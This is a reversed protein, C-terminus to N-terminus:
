RRPGSARPPATRPATRLRQGVRRPATAAPEVFSGTHPKRRTAHDRPASKTSTWGLLIEMRFTRSAPSTRAAALAWAAPKVKYLGVTVGPEIPDIAFPAPPLRLRSVLERAWRGSRADLLGTTSAATAENVLEGTLWFSIVDPILAIREASALASGSEEALLQFVTNIPMTQIGTVSYLDTRSVRAHARAIAGDTRADRYHFPTGLMRRDADFLAYDLGWADIGVGRLEGVRAAAAGIGLLVQEFLEILNWHLGDPLTVATNPFRHV